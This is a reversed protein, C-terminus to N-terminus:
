RTFVYIFRDTTGRVSKDFVMKTKDDDPNRLADSSTVFAFGASEIEQRAFEEDIRHVEAVASKGTEAFAAHDVIVLRGGPKLAGRVQSLFLDVDTNGWGRELNYYYLDHFSMVLLAADLTGEGLQLDDVESILVRVGPVSNDIYKEQLSQMVWKSYPTNNQLIVKGDPRVIGAILESYYGGGGLIDAVTDGPEINLLGLVVEPHSRGDRERDAESRDPNNIAAQVLDVHTQDPQSACATLLVAVFAGAIVRGINMLGVEEFCIFKALMSGAAFSKM